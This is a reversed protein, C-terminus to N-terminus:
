YYQPFQLPMQLTRYLVAPVFFSLLFCILLLKTLAPGITFSSCLTISSASKVLVFTFCASYPMSPSFAGSPYLLLKKLSQQLVTPFSRVSHTNSNKAIPFINFASIFLVSIVTMGFVFCASLTPPKLGIAHQLVTYLTM